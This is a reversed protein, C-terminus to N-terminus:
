NQCRLREILNLRTDTMNHFRGNYYMTHITNIIFSVLFVFFFNPYNKKSIPVKFKANIELKLKHINNNLM